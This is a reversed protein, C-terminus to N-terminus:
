SNPLNLEEYKIEITRLVESGTLETIRIVNGHEDYDYKTIDSPHEKLETIRGAEDYSISYMTRLEGTEESRRALRVLNRNWDAEFVYLSSQSADYVNTKVSVESGVEKFSEPMKFIWEQMETEPDSFHRVTRWTEKETYQWVTEDWKSGDVFKTEKKRHDEYEILYEAPQIDSRFPNTEVKYRIVRGQNDYEFTEASQLIERDQYGETQSWERCGTMRGLDDYEFDIGHLKTVNGLTERYTIRKWFGEEDYELDYDSQRIVHQIESSTAKEVDRVFYTGSNNEMFFTVKVGSKEYAVATKARNNEGYESETGILRGQEDYLFVKHDSVEGGETETYEVAKWLVKGVPEAKATLTPEGTNKPAKKTSKKKSFTHVLLVAEAIIAIACLALLGIIFNKRTLGSFRKKEKEM